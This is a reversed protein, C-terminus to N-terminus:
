KGVWNGLDILIMDMLEEVNKKEMTSQFFNVSLTLTGDYTSVLMMIGPSFSATGVMYCDEIEVRGLVIKTDSLVGVNSLWPNCFRTKAAEECFMKIQINADKFKLKGLTEFYLAMNIGPFDTKIKKTEAVVKRLTEDFSEALNRGIRIPNMGSLNCMAMKKNKPLYNRLDATFCISVMEDKIEAIKSLARIYATLCVDNVTAKERHARMKIATFQQQNFQRVVVIQKTNEGVLYPFGVTHGLDDTEEVMTNVKAIIGPVKFIAEQSRSDLHSSEVHYVQDNFIHNYISTLVHLYEKLGGADCCAHYMKICVTDAKGRFIKVKVQCDNMFDYRLAIFAALEGEIDETEVLTCIKIEDLDGRQEWMAVDDDEILRCGLIPQVDISLRIAQKMMEENVRGNVRLIYSLQNNASYQDILYNFVDQPEVSFSMMNENVEIGGLSCKM